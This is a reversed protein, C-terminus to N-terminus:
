QSQIPFGAMDSKKRCVLIETTPSERLIGTLMLEVPYLAAGSVYGLAEHYRVARVFVKWLFAHMRSSTDIPHNMLVFMPLRRVVEFGTAQLLQDVEVWSRSVMHISRQTPGHLFLDSFLFWGGTRLLSHVNEIARQYRRDDVIHFFVDFASVIDFRGTGLDELSGGIDVRVFDTNQFKAQLRSVAVETLDSGTVSGVGIDKWRQIYFGTGSGIDLVRAAPWDISLQRVVRKFVKGRVRYLWKNYREGLSTYGVGTIGPNKQLRDEWYAVPDFTNM